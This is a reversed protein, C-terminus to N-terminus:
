IVLKRVRSFDGFVSPSCDFGNYVIEELVSDAVEVANIRDDLDNDGFHRQLVDTEHAKLVQYNTELDTILATCDFDSRITKQAQHDTNLLIEQIIELILSLLNTTRTIMYRGIESTSDIQTLIKKLRDLDYLNKNDM